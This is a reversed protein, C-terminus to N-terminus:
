KDLVPRIPLGYYSPLGSIYYHHYMSTKDGMDYRKKAKYNYDFYFVRARDYEKESSMYADVYVGSTGNQVVKKGNRIGVRPLIISNGNIISTFRVSHSGDIEEMDEIICNDCLESFEEITPIRWKGGWMLNVVDKDLSLSNISNGRYFMANDEVYEVKEVIDGWAFWGGTRSLPDYLLNCDAWIVSLGMDVYGHEGKEKELNPQPPSYPEPDLISKIDAILTDVPIGYKPSTKGFRIRYRYDKMLLFSKYPSQLLLNWDCCYMRNIHIRKRLSNYRLYSVCADENSIVNYGVMWQGTRDKYVDYVYNYDYSLGTEDKRIAMLSYNYYHNLRVPFESYASFVLQSLDLEGCVVDIVRYTETLVYGYDYEVGYISEKHVDTEIKVLKCIAFSWSEESAKVEFFKFFFVLFLCGIRLICKMVKRNFLM